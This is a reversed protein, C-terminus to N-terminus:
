AAVKKQFGLVWGIIGGIIGGFATNVIIDVIISTPTYLNMCALLYFDMSLIILFTVLMGGLLGKVITKIGAWRQFIFALLFANALNAIIMLIINPMERMLGAYQTTNAEYYNMLLVGFILWGLFFSVIGGVLTAIILRTNM